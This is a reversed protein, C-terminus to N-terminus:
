SDEFVTLQKQIIRTSVQRGMPRKPAPCGRGSGKHRTSAIHM